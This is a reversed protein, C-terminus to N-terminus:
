NGLGWLKNYGTIYSNGYGKSNQPPTGATNVNKKTFIMMPTNENAVTPLGSAIRM